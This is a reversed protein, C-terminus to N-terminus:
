CLVVVHAVVLSGAGVVHVLLGGETGDAMGCSQVLVSICGVVDPVARTAYHYAGCEEFHLAPVAALSAVCGLMAGFDLCTFLASCLGFPTRRFTCLSLHCGLGLLGLLRLWGLLLSGVSESGEERVGVLFLWLLLDCAAAPTHDCPSLLRLERGKTTSSFSDLHLDM